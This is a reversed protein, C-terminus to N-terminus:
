TIRLVGVQAPQVPGRPVQAQELGVHKVGVRQRGRDRPALPDEMGCRGHGGNLNGIRLCAGIESPGTGKIKYRTNEESSLIHQLTPAPTCYSYVFWM